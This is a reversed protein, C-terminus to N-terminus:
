VIFFCVGLMWSGRQSFRNNLKGLGIVSLVKSLDACDIYGDGDVDWRYFTELITRGELCASM